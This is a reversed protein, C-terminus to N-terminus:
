KFLTKYVLENIEPDTFIELITPKTSKNLKSLGKQIDENKNISIYTLGFEKAILDAKHNQQTRFFENFSDQEKPGKIMQFIIGGGNNLIIIKLNSPMYNNWLANKDYQFSVDGLLCYIAKDTQMAHGVATSLTGEIGSTGRNCHIETNLPINKQISNVYRVSMSNGLHLVSGTPISKILENVVQFESYNSNQDFYNDIRREAEKEFTDWQNNADHSCDIEILQNLIIQPNAVVKRTISIFPDIIEEEDEIHWHNEAKTNRLFLKLSKSILSSGISILFDPKLSELSKSDITKLIVDQNKIGKECNSISDGVLTFGYKSAFIAAVEGLNKDLNQGVVLLKSKSNRVTQLFLDVESKPIVHDIKAFQINKWPSFELNSNEPYFPERIPINIHVPGSDALNIADNSTREAYSISAESQDPLWHFFKKVHKGYCNEQFVTQGDHQNIWEPPRDATIVLLPINQFYAEAVAPHFNLAATGSTCILVTPKNTSISQGVAIFGASREDSISKCNLSKNSTFAVTLAANRSGPCIIIDKIGKQVCLDALQLFPIISTM